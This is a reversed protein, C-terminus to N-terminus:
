CKELWAYELTNVMVMVVDPGVVKELSAIELKSYSQPNLDVSSVRVPLVEPTVHLMVKM